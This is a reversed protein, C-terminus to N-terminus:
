NYKTLSEKCSSKYCFLAVFACRSAKQTKRTSRASTSPTPPTWRAEHRYWHRRTSRYTFRNGTLVTLTRTTRWNRRGTWVSSYKKSWIGGSRKRRHFFQNKPRNSVAVIANALSHDVLLVLLFYNPLFHFREKNTNSLHRTAHVLSVTQSCNAVAHKPQSPPPSLGWIKRKSSDCVRM